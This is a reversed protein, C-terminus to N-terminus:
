PTPRNSGLKDAVAREVVEIFRRVDLPKTLFDDAGAAFLENVRRRTADATIVVIPTQGTAPDKRLVRLVEEGSMDPLHLDLLIVDPLHDRAMQIGQSGQMTSILKLRPRTALVRNVLELNSTNDEIYLITRIREGPVSGVNTEFGREYREVPAEALRLEITFVSGSGVVSEASLSGGMADVLGKSLALGLGTGEIGSTEAGLRDFPSFLREMAQSSIGLGTDAVKIRLRGEPIEESSISVVGGPRNYKVGNSLLNLLVQKLRQRDALVHVGNVAEEHFEIGREAAIPRVLEVADRIAAAVPVPEQSISLKGSSIRSIDLVEDILGLLHRGGRLIQKVSKSEDEDLAGMQLVQAFGLVANLPTRLEHSM